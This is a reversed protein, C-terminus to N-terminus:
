SPTVAAVAKGGVGAYRHPARAEAATEQLADFTGCSPCKGFWQLASAGCESCVYVSRARAM